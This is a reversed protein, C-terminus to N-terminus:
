TSEPKVEQTGTTSWDGILTEDLTKETKHYERRTADLIDRMTIARRATAAIFAAQLTINRISGGTLTLRALKHYDIGHTPANDPFMQQWLRQRQVKDPFPFPIIFRLRRLFADDMASRLNTTLISLGSYSEMRQLLFSIGMNAYRDRSDQVKSRKGFLADAEDFLLIAGSNEAAQFIKDLKKETEGIYKDVVCSLDIHYLDLQLQSAIIRAALTKGTGSGGSFLASIGLGYPMKEAFGWQRYVQQRLSVQATIDQLIATETDALTLDGWGLSGPSIVRALGHLNQRCQERSHQWLNQALAGPLDGASQRANDAITRIQQGSLNFQMSLQQLTTNLQNIPESSPESISQNNDLNLCHQWLQVQGSQSLPPLYLHQVHATSLTIAQDASLVCYAPLDCVLSDLWNRLLYLDAEPEAGNGAQLRQCDILLLCQRAVIERELLRRYVALEQGYLPLNCLDLEYVVRRDRQATLAAVQQRDDRAPTVLQAVSDFPTSGHQWIGYLRGASHQYGPLLPPLVPVRKLCPALLPEMYPEGVLYFLAWPTITLSQKVLNPHDKQVDILQYYRLPSTPALASWNGQFVRLALALCPYPQQSFQACLASLQMDLEMGACLVLLQREFVSLDFLECLNDLLIPTDDPSPANGPGSDTAASVVPDTDSVTAPRNDAMAETPPQQSQLQRQLQQKLM